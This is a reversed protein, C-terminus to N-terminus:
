GTEPKGVMMRGCDFTLGQWIEPLCLAAKPPTIRLKKVFRKALTNQPQEASGVRGRKHICDSQVTGTKLNNSLMKGKLSLPTLM